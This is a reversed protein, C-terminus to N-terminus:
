EPSWKKLWHQGAKLADQAVEIDNRKRPVVDPVSHLHNDISGKLIEGAEILISNDM